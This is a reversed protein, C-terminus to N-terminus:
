KRKKSEQGKHVKSMWVTPVQPERRRAVRKHLQYLGKSLSARVVENFSATLLRNAKNSTHASFREGNIKINVSGKRLFSKNSRTQKTVRVLRRPESFGFRCVRHPGLVIRKAVCSPQEEATDKMKYLSMLSQWPGCM